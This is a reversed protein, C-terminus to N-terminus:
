DLCDEHLIGTNELGKNQMGIGKRNRWKRSNRHKKNM